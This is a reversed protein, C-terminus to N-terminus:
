VGQYWMFHVRRKNNSEITAMRSSVLLFSPWIYGKVAVVDGGSERKVVSIM